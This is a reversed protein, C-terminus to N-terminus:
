DAAQNEQRMMTERVMGQTAQYPKTGFTRNLESLNSTITVLLYGTVHNLKKMNALIVWKTQFTKRGKQM